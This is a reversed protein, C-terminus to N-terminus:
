ILSVLDCSVEDWIEGNDESAGGKEHFWYILYIGDITTVSTLKDCYAQWSLLCGHIKLM